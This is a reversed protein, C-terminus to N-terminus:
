WLKIINDNDNNDNSDDILVSQNIIDLSTDNIIFDRTVQSMDLRISICVLQYYNHTDYFVRNHFRSVNDSIYKYSHKIFNIQGFDPLDNMYNVYIDNRYLYNCLKRYEDKNPSDNMDYKTLILYDNSYSSVSIYINTFKIVKHDQLEIDWVTLNIYSNDMNDRSSEDGDIDVLIYYTNDICVVRNMCNYRIKDVDYTMTDRNFINISKTYTLRNKITTDM